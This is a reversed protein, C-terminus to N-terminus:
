KCRKFSGPCGHIPNLVDSDVLAIQVIRGWRKKQESSSTTLPAEWVKNGEQQKDLMRKQFDKKHRFQGGKIDEFTVEERDWTYSLIVYEAISKGFFNGTPARDHTTPAHNFSDIV